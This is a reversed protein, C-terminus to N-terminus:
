KKFKFKRKKNKILNPKSLAQEIGIRGRFFTRTGNNKNM